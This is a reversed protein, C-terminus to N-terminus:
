KKRKEKKKKGFLKEPISLFYLLLCVLAFFLSVVFSIFCVFPAIISVILAIIGIFLAFASITKCKGIKEKM